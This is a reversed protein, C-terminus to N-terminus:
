VSGRLLSNVASRWLNYVTHPYRSCNICGSLEAFVCHLMKYLACTNCIHICSLVVLDAPLVRPVSRTKMTQYLHNKITSSSRISKIAIKRTIRRYAAYLCGTFPFLAEIDSSCMGSKAEFRVECRSFYEEKSKWKLKLYQKLSEFRPKRLLQHLILTEKKWPVDRAARMLPIIAWKEVYSASAPFLSLLKICFYGWKTVNTMQIIFNVTKTARRRNQSLAHDTISPHSYSLEMLM